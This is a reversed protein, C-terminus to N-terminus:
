PRLRWHEIRRGIDKQTLTIRKTQDMLSRNSGLM